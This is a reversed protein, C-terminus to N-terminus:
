LLPPTPQLLSHPKSFSACPALPLPHLAPTLDLGACDEAQQTVKPLASEKKPGVKRMRVTPTLLLEDKDAKPRSAQGASTGQPGTIRVILAPLRERAGGKQTLSGGGPPAQAGRPSLKAWVAGREWSGEDKFFSM